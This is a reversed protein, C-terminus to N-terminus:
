GEQVTKAYALWQGNDSLKREGISEWKDYVSHDLTKKQALTSSIVFCFLIGFVFRM